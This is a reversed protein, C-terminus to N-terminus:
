PPSLVVAPPQDCYRGPHPPYISLMLAKARNGPVSWWTRCHPIACDHAVEARTVGPPTCGAVPPAVPRRRPENMCLAGNAGWVAELRSALVSTPPSLPVPAPYWDPAATAPTPFWSPRPDMYLMPTGDSTWAKGNGCYDATLMKMMATRQAQTTTRPPGSSVMQGAQTHRMLHMKAMVAGACALNFWGPGPSGPGPSPAVTKTPKDYHDGEFVIAANEVGKWLKGPELYEGKCLKEQFDTEPPRDNGKENAAAGVPPQKRNHTKRVLFDYYPVEDFPPVWFKLCADSREQCKEHVKGVKV